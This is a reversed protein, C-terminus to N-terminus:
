KRRLLSKPNHKVSEFYGMLSHASKVNIFISQCANKTPFYRDGKRTKQTSYQILPFIIIKLTVATHRCLKRIYKLTKKVKKKFSEKLVNLFVRSPM